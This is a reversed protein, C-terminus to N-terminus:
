GSPRAAAQRSLELALERFPTLSAPDSLSALDLAKEAAVGELIKKIPLELKKGSLTRPISGVQQVLDPVHRPSLQSRLASKVEGVLQDTLSQGPNLTVFLALYSDGQSQAVDVVLSDQIPALDEVVQYIESTGMRVGHRNITADSRGYIIVGGDSRVRIWDGHRWVGPFVNFYSERYRSGDRDGWFFVPMSPM